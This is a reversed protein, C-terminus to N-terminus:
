EGPGGSRTLRAPAERMEHELKELWFAMGMERYMTTATAFHEREQDPTGTRRYVNALGAHCHTILPRM